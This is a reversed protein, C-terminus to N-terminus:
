CYNGRLPVFFLLFSNKDKDNRDILFFIYIEDDQKHQFEWLFSSSKPIFSVNFFQLKTKVNKRFRKTTSHLLMNSLVVKIKASQQNAFMYIIIPQDTDTSKM